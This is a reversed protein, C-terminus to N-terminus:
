LGPKCAHWYSVFYNRTTPDQGDTNTSSGQLLHSSTSRGEFDLSPSIYLARLCAPHFREEITNAAARVRGKALFCRSRCLTRARKSCTSSFPPTSSPKATAGGLVAARHQTRVAETNCRVTEIRHIYTHKLSVDTDGLVAIYLSGKTQKLEKSVNKLDHVHVCLDVIYRM